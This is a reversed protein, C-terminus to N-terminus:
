FADDVLENILDKIVPDTNALDRLKKFSGGYKRKGGAYYMENGIKSKSISSQNRGTLKSIETQTLGLASLRVILRQHETLHCDILRWFNRHLEEIVEAKREADATGFISHQNSLKVLDVPNFVVECFIHQYRDSQRTM